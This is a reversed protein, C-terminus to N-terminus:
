GGFCESACARLTTRGGELPLSGFRTCVQSIQHSEESSAGWLETRCYKWQLAPLPTACGSQAWGGDQGPTIGEAGTFPIIRGTWVRASVQGTEM